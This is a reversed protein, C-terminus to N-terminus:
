WTNTSRTFTVFLDDDVIHLLFRNGVIWGDNPSVFSLADFTFNGWDPAFRYTRVWYAPSARLAEVASENTMTCGALMLIASWIGKKLTEGSKYRAVMTVCRAWFPAPRRM